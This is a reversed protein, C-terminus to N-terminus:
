HGCPGTSTGFFLMLLLRPYWMGLSGLTFLPSKDGVQAGSARADGERQNQETGREREGRERERGRIEQERVRDREKREGRRDKSKERDTPCEDLSSTLLDQPSLHHGDILVIMESIVSQNTPGPNKTSTVSTPSTKWLNTECKNKRGDIKFCSLVSLYLLM